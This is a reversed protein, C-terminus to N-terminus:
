AGLANAEDTARRVILDDIRPIRLQVASERVEIRRMLDVSIEDDFKWKAPSARYAAPHAPASVSENPAPVDAAQCSPAAPQWETNVASEIEGRVPFKFTVAHQDSFLRLGPLEQTARGPVAWGTEGVDEAFSGSGEVREPQGKRSFSTIAVIQAAGAVEAQIHSEPLRELEGFRGGDSEAPLHEVDEVVHPEICQAGDRGEVRLAGESVEISQKGTRADHLKAKPEIELSAAAFRNSLHFFARLDARAKLKSTVLKGLRPGRRAIAVTLQDTNGTM